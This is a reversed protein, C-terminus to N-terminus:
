VCVVRPCAHRIRILIPTSVSVASTPLGSARFDSTLKKKRMISERDYIRIAHIIKLSKSETLERSIKATTAASKKAPM